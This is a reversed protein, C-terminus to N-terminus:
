PHQHLSHTIHRVQGSDIRWIEEVFIEGAGAVLSSTRDTPLEPGLLHFDFPFSCFDVDSSLHFYLYSSGDDGSQKSTVTSGDCISQMESYLVHRTMKMNAPQMLFPAVNLGGSMHLTCERLAVYRGCQASVVSQYPHIVSCIGPKYTPPGRGTNISAEPRSFGRRSLSRARSSNPIVRQKNFGDPKFDHVVVIFELPFVTILKYTSHILKM